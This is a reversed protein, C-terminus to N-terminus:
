VVKRLVVSQSLSKDYSFDSSIVWYDGNIIDFSDMTSIRIRDGLQLKPVTLITLNLIPVPESVKSIIFNALKKAHDLNTIFPNDITIEKLGYRRINDDLTAKQEKVEGTVESVVVPIGAISTFHKEDTQPNDGELYVIDGAVNNNSAAVIMMAGYPSPNYRILELRPPKVTTINTILPQEIMYAPSKDFLLRDYVKVERVITNSNHLAAATEFQGRELSTFSNSTTNGYKVIEDDILLYGTKAFFPDNTSTVTMSTASNSLSATLSVVAVTTPSEARWLGQKSTINNTMGQTKVTVKNTQLQVNYSADIINSSDSLTYQVNAHQDISSEFFRNFHEYRARNFEDFYLRGFDSLSVEDIIQGISQDNGFIFPMVQV